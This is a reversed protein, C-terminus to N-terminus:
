NSAFSLTKFLAYIAVFIGKCSHICEFYKYGNGFKKSQAAVMSGCYTGGLAHAIETEDKDYQLM